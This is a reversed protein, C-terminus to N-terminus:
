YELYPCILFPLFPLFICVKYKTEGGSVETLEDLMIQQM